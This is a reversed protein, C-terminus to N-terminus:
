APQRSRPGRPRRPWNVASPGCERRTSAPWLDAPATLRTHVAATQGCRCVLQADKGVLYRALPRPTELATLVVAAVVEPDSGRQHRAGFRSTMTGFADADLARAGPEFQQLAAAADKEFKEGAETRINGPEILVVRINWPAPELRLAETLALLAHKSAALPRRVAAHTSRCHFRDHGGSRNGTPDAAPLGVRDGEAVVEEIPCQLDPLGERLARIFLKLGERTPALQSAM